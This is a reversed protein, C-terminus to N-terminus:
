SWSLGFVIYYPIQTKILTLTSLTRINIIEFTLNIIFTYAPLMGANMPCAKTFIHHKMIYKVNYRHFVKSGCTKM